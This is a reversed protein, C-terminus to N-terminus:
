RCRALAQYRTALSFSFKHPREQLVFAIGKLSGTQCKDQPKDTFQYGLYFDLSQLLLLVLFRSWDLIKLDENIVIIILGPAAWFHLYCHQQNWVFDTM